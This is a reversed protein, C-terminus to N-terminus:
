FRVSLKRRICAWTGQFAMAPKRSMNRMLMLRQAHFVYVVTESSKGDSRVISSAMSSFSYRNM